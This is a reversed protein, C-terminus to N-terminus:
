PILLDGDRPNDEDPHTPMMKLAIWAPNAALATPMERLLRRYETWKDQLAQPMDPTFKGDTHQLEKDRKARVFDWTPLSTVAGGYMSDEISILPVTINDNSDVSLDYRDYVDKPLIPTAYKYSRYGAVEVCLPHLQEGTKDEEAEDIVPARLQCILPNEICDVEVYRCGLPVPRGDAKDEATIPGFEEKGTENNVILYIKDPGDYTAARTKGQSQSHDVQYENPLNYEYDVSVLPM